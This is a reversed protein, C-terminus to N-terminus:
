RRGYSFAGKGMAEEATKIMIAKWIEQKLSKKIITNALTEKYVEKQNM